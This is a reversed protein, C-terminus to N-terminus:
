AKNKARISEATPPNIRAWYDPKRLVRNHWCDVVAWGNDTSYWMLVKEYEPPREQQSDVWDASSGPAAFSSQAMDTQTMYNTGCPTLLHANPLEDSM